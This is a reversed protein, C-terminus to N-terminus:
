IPSMLTLQAIPASTICGDHPAASSSSHRPPTIRNSLLLFDTQNPL